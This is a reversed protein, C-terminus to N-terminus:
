HFVQPWRLHAICCRLRPGVGVCIPIILCHMMSAIVQRGGDARELHLVFSKPYKEQLWAEYEKGKGKNYRCGQHFEKYTARPLLQDYETSMREWSSFTDLEEKLEEKM